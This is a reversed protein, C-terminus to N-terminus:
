ASKRNVICMPGQAGLSSALRFYGLSQIPKQQPFVRRNKQAPNKTVSFLSMKVAKTVHLPLLAYFFHQDPSSTASKTCQYVPLSTRQYVPLSTCEPLSTCNYVPSSTAGDTMM